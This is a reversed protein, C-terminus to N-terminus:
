TGVADSVCKKTFSTRAAGSLKKGAAQSDCATKADKECKTLFSKEAAGHLNKDAAQSKCTPAQANASAALCSAAFTSVVAASLFRKMSDEEFGGIAGLPRLSDALRSIM